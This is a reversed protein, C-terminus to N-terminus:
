RGAVASQEAEKLSQEAELKYSSDVDSKFSLRKNLQSLRFGEKRILGGFAEDIFSSGFGSTGDLDVLIEDETERLRKALISQRFKEGSFPGQRTYRPGPHPSFDRAVSIVVKPM